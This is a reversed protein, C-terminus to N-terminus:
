PLPCRASPMAYGFLFRRIPREGATSTVARFTTTDESVWFEPDERSAVVYAGWPARAAAAFRVSSDITEESWAAGDFRRFERRWGRFAVFGAATPELTGLDDPVDIVSWSEGGDFSACSQLEQGGTLMTNHAYVQPVRCNSSFGTELQETFTRGGDVSLLLWRESKDVNEGEVYLRGLSPFYRHGRHHFYRYDLEEGFETWDLGDESAM